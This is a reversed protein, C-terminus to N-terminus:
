PFAQLEQFTQSLSSLGVKWWRPPLLYYRFRHKQTSKLIKWRKPTFLKIGPRHCVPTFSCTLHLHCDAWCSPVCWHITKRKRGEASAALDVYCVMVRERRTAQNLLRRPDVPKWVCAVLSSAFVKLVSFPCESFTGAKSAQGPANDCCCFIRCRSNKFCKLLRKMIHTAKEFLRKKGM